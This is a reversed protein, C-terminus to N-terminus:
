TPYSERMTLSGGLETTSPAADALFTALTGRYLHADYRTRWYIRIQHGDDLLRCGHPDTYVGPRALAFDHTM